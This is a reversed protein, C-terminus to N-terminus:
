IWSQTFSKKKKKNVKNNELKFQVSIVLCHRAGLGYDRVRRGGVSVQELTSM